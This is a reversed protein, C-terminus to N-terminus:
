AARRRRFIAGALLGSGLLALSGPTPVDTSPPTFKGLGLLAGSDSYATVANDFTLGLTATNTFDALFSTIGDYTSTSGGVVIRAYIEFTEFDSELFISDAILENISWFPTEADFTTSFDNISQFFVASASDVAWTNFTTDGPRYIALTVDYNTYAHTPPGGTPGGFALDFYGDLALSFDWTTGAGGTITVTDGFIANTSALKTGGSNAAASAKLEGTGLNVSAYASRGEADSLSRVKTTAGNAEYGNSVQYGPQPTFTGTIPNYLQSELQAYPLVFYGAQAPAAIGAFALGIAAIRSYITM